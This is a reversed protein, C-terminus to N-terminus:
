NEDNSRLKVNESVIKFINYPNLSMMQYYFLHRTRKDLYYSLLVCFETIVTAYAAGIIGIRLLLVFNLFFNIIISFIARYMIMKQKEELVLIKNNLSQFFAFIIIISYIKLVEASLQYESTFFNNMIQSSFLFFFFYIALGCYFLVSYLKLVYDYFIEDGKLKVITNYLLNTMISPLVIAMTVLKVGAVYIGVSSKGLLMSIMWQDQITYILGVLSVIMMPLGSKILETDLSKKCLTTNRLLKREILILFCIYILRNLVVPTIFWPYSANVNILILTCILQSLSGLVSAIIVPNYRKESFLFEKVASFSDFWFTITLVFLMLGTKKDIFFWLTLAMLTFIFAALLRLKFSDQLLQYCKNEIFRKFLIPDLGLSAAVASVQYFTLVVSLNGFSEPGLYNIM